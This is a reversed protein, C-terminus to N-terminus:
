SRTPFGRRQLWRCHTMQREIFVWGDSPVVVGAAMNDTEDVEWRLFRSTDRQDVFASGNLVRVFFGTTFARPMPSFHTRMALHRTVGDVTSSAASGTGKTVKLAWWEVGRRRNSSPRTLSLLTDIEPDLPSGAGGYTGNDHTFQPYGSFMSGNFGQLYSPKVFTTARIAANVGSGGFRGQDPLVNLAMDPHVNLGRITAGTPLTAHGTTNDFTMAEIFTIGDSSTKFKLDAGGTLGIEAHGTFGSQFLVSATDTDTAKNLKTQISSGDHNLLIAESAVTLRNTADASANIGLQSPRSPSWAAGDYHLMLRDEIVWVQWGDRPRLFLWGQAAADWAAISDEQSSWADTAPAAVLYRDGDQPDSPPMTRTHDSVSLQVAADVRAFAENVTVHKQSQASALPVLGLNPTPM